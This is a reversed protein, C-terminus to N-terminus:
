RGPKIYLRKIRQSIGTILEYSITGVQEGLTEATHESDFIIVEDGERCDIDSVDVMIMDM